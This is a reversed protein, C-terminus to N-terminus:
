IANSVWHVHTQAFELLYHLVPFGPTRCNMPDCLTQCSETVLCCFVLDFALKPSMCVCMVYMHIWQRGERAEPFPFKSGLILFPLSQPLCKGLNRCSSLPNLTGPKEQIHGLALYCLVSQSLNSIGSVPGLCCPFVHSADSFFAGHALIKGLARPIVATPLSGQGLVSMVCVLFSFGFLFSIQQSWAPPSLYLQLCSDKVTQGVGMRQRLSYTSHTSSSYLRDVALHWLLNPWYAREGPSM